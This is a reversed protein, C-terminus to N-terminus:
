RKTCYLDDKLIGYIMELVRFVRVTFQHICTSGSVLHLMRSRQASLFPRGFPGRPPPPPHLQPTISNNESNWSPIAGVCLIWIFQNSFSSFKWWLIWDGHSHRARGDLRSKESSLRTKSDCHQEKDCSVHKSQKSGNEASLLYFLEDCDEIPQTSLFESSKM